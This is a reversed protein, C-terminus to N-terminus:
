GVGFTTVLVGDFAGTPGVAVNANLLIIARLLDLGFTSIPVALKEADAADIALLAVWEVNSGQTIHVMRVHKRPNQQLFLSMYRMPLMLFRTSEPTLSQHSVAIEVEAVPPLPGETGDGPRKETIALNNNIQQISKLAARPLRCALAAAPPNAAPDTPLIRVTTVPQAFFDVTAPSTHLVKVTYPLPGENLAKVEPLLTAPLTLVVGLPQPGNARVPLAAALLLGAIGLVQALHRRRANPSM